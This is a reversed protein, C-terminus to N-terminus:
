VSKSEKFGLGLLDHSFGEGIHDGPVLRGEAESISLFHFCKAACAGARPQRCPLGLEAMKADMHGQSVQRVERHKKMQITPTM